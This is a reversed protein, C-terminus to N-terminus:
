TEIVKWYKKSEEALKKNMAIKFTLVEIAERSKLGKQYWFSEKNALIMTSADFCIVNSCYPWIHLLSLHKKSHRSKFRDSPINYVTGVFRYGRISM